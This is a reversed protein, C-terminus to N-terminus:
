ASSPMRSLLGDRPSPSTYLLCTSLRSGSQSEGSAIVTQPRLGNLPDAGSGAGLLAKIGASYIEFSLPDGDSQPNPVPNAISLDGYRAANFSKLFNVGTNQASIGVWAYGHDILYQPDGFWNWEVDFGATVNMWEVIVTGNFDAPDVPRRVIMRTRYPYRGDNADGGTTIKTATQDNPGTRDYAFANGSYEFEEEVYGKSALDLDTALFPTNGPGTPQPGFVTPTEVDGVGALAPQAGLGMLLAVAMLGVAARRLM